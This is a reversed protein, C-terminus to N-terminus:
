PGADESLGTEYETVAYEYRLYRDVPCEKCAHAEGHQERVLALAKALAQNMAVFWGPQTPFLDDRGFAEAIGTDEIHQMVDKRMGVLLLHRGQKALEEHARLLVQATTFDIGQIRKLRVVLVKVGPDDVYPALAAELESAAGFFLPGEVHIVRISTCPAPADAAGPEIERLRPVLDTVRLERVVLLRVRRLFLVISIGVGLFIAEDLPLLWTGLVTGLFALRDGPGSRVITLVQNRDVLDTALVLIAGALTPLPTWDLVGAFVLPVLLVWSGALAGALRTRAGLQENLRSRSLSGSVPYGGSLAAAVNAAGLGAFDTNVDVRQGTRSAMSRAVSSSEVLSLVTAALAGPLLPLAGGLTPLAFPPLRHPVPAVDAVVHVGLSRLDLMWTLLIGTGMALLSPFGRALYRRLYLITGVALAALVTSPLHVVSLDGLWHFLRAFIDGRGAETGTATPLQGVVILAAAGTVYGGVVASSVYDVLADLRLAAAGLQFVGVLLAVTAAAAVPDASGSAALTTALILSLANTPGVVVLRSSRTLSGVIAPIAAAYLGVVPPLGAVLAYAMGQPVGLAAGALSATVEGRLDKWRLDALDSLPLPSPSGM